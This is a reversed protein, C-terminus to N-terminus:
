FPVDDDDAIEEYDPAASYAPAQSTQPRDSSEKKGGFFDVELALVEVATRKAGDKTTYSRTQLKGQIAIPSGKKFYRSVFQAKKEWAVITFFDTGQEGDKVFPRDVAIDFTTVDKRTTTTRLEPDATLRGTLIVSNLSM